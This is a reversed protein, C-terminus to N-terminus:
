SFPQPAGRTGWGFSRRGEPSGGGASRPSRAVVMDRERVFFQTGYEASMAQVADVIAAGEQTDVPAPQAQNNILVPVLSVEQLAGNRIVCRALGATQKQGYFLDFAFNGLSYFIVKGKYVEVPQLVHPHHGIVIDAGADVAAHAMLTQYPVLQGAGGTAPSIGWHWSIVVIDAHERTLRVDEEMRAQQGLDPLTHIIPPSGPAEVLRPQPEYATAIRVTAIGGRDKAAAFPPVFVSSYSLFAIRTGKREVMAPRHAADLDSGGGAHAIGAGDLLEITRLLGEPGYNMSHNNALGAATLGAYTYAPFMREESKFTAGGGSKAETARGRDTVAAELNGFFVDAQRLYPAALEFISEPEPRQVHLDGSLVLTVNGDSM